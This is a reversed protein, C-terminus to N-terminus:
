LVGREGGLLFDNARDLVESNRLASGEKREIDSSPPATPPSVVGGYARAIQPTEAVVRFPERRIFQGAEKMLHRM